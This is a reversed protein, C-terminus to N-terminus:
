WGFIQLPTLELGEFVASRVREARGFTAEALVGQPALTLVSIEKQPLRALWCERVGYRSFWELRESLTGIRPNPSLIEIVLDPAGFVKATVIENREKSVFLLDPQVVLDADFDLVVDMPAFLLEGLERDQVFPTLTMVFERLVRQHSVSPSEAVRLQGFALEQPLVTEPTQFYEATTMHGERTKRLREFLGAMGSEM